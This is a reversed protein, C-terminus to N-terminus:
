EEVRCERGCAPPTLSRKRRWRMRRSVHWLHKIKKRRMETKGEGPPLWRRHKSRSRESYIIFKFPDTNQHKEMLKLYVLRRASAVAPSQDCKGGSSELLSAALEYKGCM